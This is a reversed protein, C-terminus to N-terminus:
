PRGYKLYFAVAVLISILSIIISIFVIENFNYSRYSVSFDIVKDSNRLHIQGSSINSTYKYPLSISYNYNGDPLTINLYYGVSKYSSKGIHVTYNIGAPLDKADFVVYNKETTLSMISHNESQGQSGSFNPVLLLLLAVAVTIVIIKKGQSM